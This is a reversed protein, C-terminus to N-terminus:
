SKAYKVTFVFNKKEKFVQKLEDVSSPKQADAAKKLDHWLIESQNLDTSESPWELLM